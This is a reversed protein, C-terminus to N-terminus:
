FTLNEITREVLRSGSDALVRKLAALETFEEKAGQLVESVADEAEAFAGAGVQTANLSNGNRCDSVPDGSNDAACHGAPGGFRLGVRSDQAV